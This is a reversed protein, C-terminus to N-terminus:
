TFQIVMVALVFLIGVRVAVDSVTEITVGVPDEEVDEKYLDNTNPRLLFFEVLGYCLVVIPVKDLNPINVNANLMIRARFQSFTDWEEARPALLSRTEAFGPLTAAATATAAKSADGGQRVIKSGDLVARTGARSSGRNSASSSSPRFAAPGSPGTTGVTGDERAAPTSVLGLRSLADLSPAISRGSQLYPDAPGFLPNSHGHAPVSAAASAMVMTSIMSPLDPYSPALYNSASPFAAAATVASTRASATRSSSTAAASNVVVHLEAPPAPATFATSIMTTQVHSPDMWGKLETPRRYRHEEQVRRKSPFQYVSPQFGHVMRMTGVVGDNSNSGLLLLVLLCSSILLNPFRLSPAPSPGM